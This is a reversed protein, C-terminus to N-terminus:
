EFSGIVFVLFYDFVFLFYYGFLLDGGFLYM